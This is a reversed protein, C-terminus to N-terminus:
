QKTAQFVFRTISYPGDCSKGPQGYVARGQTLQEFSSKLAAQLAASFEWPAAEVEGTTRWTQGGAASGEIQYAYKTM